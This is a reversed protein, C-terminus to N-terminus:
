PQEGAKTVKNTATTAPTAAGAPPTVTFGHKMLLARMKEDQLSINAMDQLVGSRIQQGRQGLIGNNLSQQVNQLQGQLVQQARAIAVTAIALALYACGVVWALIYQRKTVM